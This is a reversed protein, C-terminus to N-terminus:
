QKESQDLVKDSIKSISSSLKMAKKSEVLAIIENVDKQSIKVLLHTM